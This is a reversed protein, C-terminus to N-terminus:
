RRGCDQPTSVVSSPSHLFENVLVHVTTYTHMTSILQTGVCGEERNICGGRGSSMDSDKNQFISPACLNFFCFINFKSIFRRHLLLSRTLVSLLTAEMTTMSAMPGMNRPSLGLRHRNFKLPSLFEYCSKRRYGTM